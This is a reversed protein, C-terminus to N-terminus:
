EGNHFYIIKSFSYKFQDEAAGSDAKFDNPVVTIKIEVYAPLTTGAYTSSISSGTKDYANITFDKVGELVVSSDGLTSTYYTANTKYDWDTNHRQTTYSRIIDSDVLQYKVEIFNSTDSDTLGIGSTTMFAMGVNNLMAYNIGITDPPTSEDEAVVISELDRSLIDFFLRQDNYVNTRRTQQKTVLQAKSLMLTLFGMIIMLIVMAIMVEILTMRSKRIQKIKRRM